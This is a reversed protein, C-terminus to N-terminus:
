FNSLIAVFCKVYRTVFSCENLAKEEAKVGLDSHDKLDGENQIIAKISQFIYSPNDRFRESSVELEDIALVSLSLM